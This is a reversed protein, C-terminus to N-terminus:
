SYQPTVAAEWYPRTGFYNHIFAGWEHVFRHASLSGQIPPARLIWDAHANIRLRAAGDDQQVVNWPVAILQETKGRGQVAIVGYAVRGTALDLMIDRLQGVRIGSRDVVTCGIVGDVSIMSRTALYPGAGSPYHIFTM